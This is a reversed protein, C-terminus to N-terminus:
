KTNVAKGNETINVSKPVILFFYEFALFQVIPTKVTKDAPSQKKIKTLTINEIPKPAHVFSAIKYEDEDESVYQETLLSKLNETVTM